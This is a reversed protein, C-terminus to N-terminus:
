FLDNKFVFEPILFIPCEEERRRSQIAGIKGHGASIQLTAALLQIRDNADKPARSRRQSQVERALSGPDDTQAIEEVLCAVVPQFPSHRDDVDAGRDSGNTEPEGMTSKRSFRKGNM